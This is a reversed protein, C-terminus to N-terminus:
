LEDEELELAIEKEVDALAQMSIELKHNLIALEKISKEEDLEPMEIIMEPPSIVPFAVRYRKGYHTIFATAKPLNMINTVTAIDEIESTSSMRTNASDVMVMPKVKTVSGIQMASLQGSKLDNAKMFIQTNVNDSVVRALDEGLNIVKDVPSQYFAHISLGVGATKNYIEEIGPFVAAKGEDIFFQTRRKPIRGSAAITGFLSEFTKFLIKLISDSVERFKLPVTQIVCVIGEKDNVIRELIPNIRISCFLDGIKGSSLQMLLTSLSTTIKEFFVRDKGAIEEILTLAERRLMELRHKEEKPLQEIPMYSKVEMALKQIRTFSLLEAIEKFTILEINYMLEFNEKYLDNKNKKYKIIRESIDPILVNNIKDKKVVDFGFYKEREKHKLFEHEVAKRIHEPKNLAGSLYEYCVLIAYITKYSFSTYFFADAGGSGGQSIRAILSAREENTMGFLPNFKLSAEPVLPNVYAFSKEKKHRILSEITWGIIEQNEGGKPDIIFVNDNKQIYQDTMHSLLYSKGYRTTGTTDSHNIMDGWKLYLPEMEIPNSLDVGFGMFLGRKTNIFKKEILQREKLLQTIKKEKKEALEDHGNHIHEDVIKKISNIKKNIKRYKEINRRYPNFLFM